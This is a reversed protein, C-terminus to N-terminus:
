LSELFDVKFLIRNIEPTIMVNIQPAMKPKSGIANLVNVISYIIFTEYLNVYIFVRETAM